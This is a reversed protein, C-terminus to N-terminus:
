AGWLSMLYAPVVLQPVAASRGARKPLTHLWVCEMWPHEQISVDLDQRSGLPAHAVAIIMRHVAPLCLCCCRGVSGKIEVFNNAILLALLGNRKSNLAVALVLGQLGHRIPRLSQFAIIKKHVALVLQVFTLMVVHLPTTTPNIQTLVLM